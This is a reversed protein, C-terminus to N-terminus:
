GKMELCATRLIKHFHELETQVHMRFAFHRDTHVPM